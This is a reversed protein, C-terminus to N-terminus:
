PITNKGQCEKRYVGSYSAHREAKELKIFAPPSEEKALSLM